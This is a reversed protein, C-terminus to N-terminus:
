ITEHNEDNHEDIDDLQSGKKEGDHISMEMESDVPSYRQDDHFELGCYELIHNGIGEFMNGQSFSTKPFINNISQNWFERLTIIEDGEVPVDHAVMLLPIM